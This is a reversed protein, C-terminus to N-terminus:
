ITTSWLEQSNYYLSQRENLRLDLLHHIFMLRLLSLVLPKYLMHAKMIPQTIFITVEMVFKIDGGLLKCWLQICINISITIVLQLEQLLSGIKTSFSSSFLLLGLYFNCLAVLQWCMSQKSHNRTLSWELKIGIQINNKIKKKYFRPGYFVWCFGLLPNNQSFRFNNHKFLVEAKDFLM